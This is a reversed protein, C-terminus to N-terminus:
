LLKSSCFNTTQDVLKICGIYSISLKRMLCRFHFVDSVHSKYVYYPINFIRVAYMSHKMENEAYCRYHSSESSKGRWNDCKVFSHSLMGAPVSSKLLLISQKQM